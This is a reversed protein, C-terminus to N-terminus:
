SAWVLAPLDAEIDALSTPMPRTGAEVQALIDYAAAWTSDRLNVCTKGENKFKTVLSTAYTGASLISDYNRGRAFNDLRQQILTAFNQRVQEPTPPEPEPTPPIDQYVWEGGVFHRTKGEVAAPPELETAHAPVLWKGRELPNPDAVGAAILQQTDPHYHYINM